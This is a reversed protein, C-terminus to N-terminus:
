FPIEDNFPLDDSAKKPDAKQAARTTQKSDERPDFMSVMVRMDGEKRPVAALNIHADLTIYDNDQGGHLQGIILWRHKTEGASNTYSGNKVVLNKKIPM